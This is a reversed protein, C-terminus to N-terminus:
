QPSDAVDASDVVRSERRNVSVGMRDLLTDVLDDPFPPGWPLEAVHVPVQTVVDALQDFQRRVAAADKWGLLRPFRSLLLLAESARLRTVSTSDATASKDPIPVVIAALPITEDVATATALADRADGTLRRDPAVDFQEMLEAASKRLRVETAGLACRFQGEGPTLRLLDDTILLAGRSCFLTALTSKGMGSGGIFAVAGQDVQVASAHLVTAGRLTLLLALVTGAVLVSLLSLDVGQVPHVTLTSSSADFRVDCSGYFRAVYVGDTHGITYHQKKTQLHLIPTGSPRDDVAQIPAGLRVEVDIDGGPPVPRYQYLPLESSINLDYLRCEYTM